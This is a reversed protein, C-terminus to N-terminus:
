VASSIRAARAFDEFRILHDCRTVGPLGLSGHRLVAMCFIADYTGSPEAATSHATAFTIHADPSKKFRRRCVAINGPNIDVGRIIARSLYRRLSFVEDGTSCGYSLIRIESTAGLEGQVFEFIRPYRDEFTDNFPQFAGNPKFIYIWMVNPYVRDVALRWLWRIARVPIPPRAIPPAANINEIM